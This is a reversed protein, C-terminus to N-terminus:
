ESVASHRNQAAFEKDLRNITEAVVKHAPDAKLAKAWLTRAEEKKGLKWLVEGLHAAVEGDPFKDYAVQLFALAKDLNGLRYQVWGMSDLIAPDSSNIQYARSILENAEKLRMSRDALTYGLANLVLANNPQVGLIKRLDKELEDLRDLKELVMARSYLLSVDEPFRQLSHNYLALAQHYETRKVLLEGELLFLQAAQAPYYGRASELQKRAELWQGNRILMRAMAVQAMLFEKGPTVASFYRQADDWQKQNESIKGLYFNASNRRQGMSLLRQFYSEAENEIDLDMSILGLSLIVEIDNPSQQLLMEFQARAQELKNIGVLVRAYLLRLRDREPHQKVADALMAEAEAGRGMKNLVRGRLILARVAEADKKILEDCIALADEYYQSQLLMGAMALSLSRNDPYARSAQAFATRVSEKDSEPLEAAYKAMAEFNATKDLALVQNMRNVAQEYNGSQMLEFASARLAVADDAALETWLMAADLAAQRAGVFSAIQYARKAVGVDRTKHAQKLYNGLALDYRQRQGGLEAVMLDYLTDPEFSAYVEEQEKNDAGEASANKDMTQNTACGQLLAVVCLMLIMLHKKM